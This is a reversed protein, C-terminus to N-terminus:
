NAMSTPTWQLINRPPRGRRGRMAGYAGLYLCVHDFSCPSGLGQQWGHTFQLSQTICSM